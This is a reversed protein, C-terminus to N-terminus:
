VEINKLRDAFMKIQDNLFQLNSVVSSLHKPIHTEINNLLLENKKLNKSTESYETNLNNMTIALIEVKHRFIDLIKMRQIVHPLLNSEERARIITEYLKNTKRDTELKQDVLKSTIQKLKPLLYVARSEIVNIQPLILKSMGKLMSVAEVLGKNSNVGVLRMLIPKESGIIKELKQLHDELQSIQLSQVTSPKLNNLTIKINLVRSMNNISVFKEKYTSFLHKELFTSIIFNRLTVIVTTKYIELLKFHGSVSCIFLKNLINQIQFGINACLKENHDNEDVIQFISEQILLEETEFKLRYYKQLPTEHEGQAALEWYESKLNHKIKFSKRFTDLMDSSFDINSSDVLYKYSECVNTQINSNIDEIERKINYNKNKDPIDIESRNSVPDNFKMLLIKDDKFIALTNWKEQNQRPYKKWNNNSGNLQDDKSDIM